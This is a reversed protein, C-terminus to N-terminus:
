LFGKFFECIVSLEKFKKSNNEGLIKSFQSIESVKKSNRTFKFFNSIRYKIEKKEAAKGRSLLGLNCVIM